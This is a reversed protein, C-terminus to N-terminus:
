SASDLKHALKADPAASLIQSINGKLVRILSKLGTARGSPRPM